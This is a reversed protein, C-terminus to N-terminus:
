GTRSRHRAELELCVDSITLGRVALLVMVHYLLDAAEARVRDNDELVAALALEVGEEGVKQAVKSPGRSALQATYSGETIPQRLREGIVAQLELLFEVKEM